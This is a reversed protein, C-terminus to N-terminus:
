SRKASPLPARPVMPPGTRHPRTRLPGTRHPGDPAAGDPAAGAGGQGRRPGIELYYTTAGTRQAVGPVSTAQVRRGDVSAADVLWNSLVGGGEGGLAAILVTWTREPPEAAARAEPGSTSGPAAAAAARAAPTARGVTEPSGSDPGSVPEPNPTTEAM